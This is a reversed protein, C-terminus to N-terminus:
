PQTYATLEELQEGEEKIKGVGPSFWFTKTAAGSTVKQLRVSAFTGAPVTVPEDVAQVTWTEDKSVTQTGNVPDVETETYSVTWSAGMALHAPTEDVRLKSPAYFQDSQLVDALDFSQERHRVISTCLDQQWSVTSGDLKATRIRYATVGAKRDGVDELAEVTSDKTEPPTGVNVLDTVRYSWTAGIALPLLRDSAPTDCVVVGADPASPADDGCGAALLLALPLLSLRLPMTHTM